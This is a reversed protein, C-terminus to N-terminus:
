GAPWTRCVPVLDVPLKGHATISVERVDGSLLLFANKEVRWHFDRRPDDSQPVIDCGVCPSDGTNTIRVTWRTTDTTERECSIIELSLKGAPMSRLAAFPHLMAFSDGRPTVAGTAAFEMLNVLLRRASSWAFFDIEQYNQGGYPGCFATVRGAGRNCTAIAPRDDVKAIVESEPKSEFIITLGLTPKAEAPINAWIPHEGCRQLVHDGTSPGESNSYPAVPFSIPLLEELPSAQLEDVTFMGSMYASSNYGLYLLSAGAEVATRLSQWCAMTLSSIPNVVPGLVILDYNQFDVNELPARQSIVRHDLEFGAATFYSFWVSDEYCGGDLFLTRLPKAAPDRPLSFLTYDNEVGEGVLRLFFAGEDPAPVVIDGLYTVFYTAAGTFVQSALLRGSAGYVSATVSVMEGNPTDTHWHIGAQVPAGAAFLYGSLRASVLRPACSRQMTWFSAKRRLSQDILGWNFDVWPENFEWIYFGNMCPHKRRYEEALYQYGVAQVWQTRRLADAAGAIDGAPGFMECYARLHNFYGECPQRHQWAEGFLDEVEEGTMVEHLSDLSPMAVIGCESNFPAQSSNYRGVHGMDFFWPGHVEPTIPSSDRFLQHAGNEATLRNMLVFLPDTRRNAKIQLLENGGHLCIVSPHSNVQELMARMEQELHRLLPLSPSGYGGFNLFDQAIMLGQLDAEEYLSEDLALGGGWVRLSTLNAACAERVIERQFEPSYDSPFLTPPLLAGGRIFLEKGNIVQKLEYNGEPYTAPWNQGAEAIYRYGKYFDQSYPGNNEYPHWDLLSPAAAAPFAVNAQMEVDRFGTLVWTNVGGATASLRYCSPFGQHFPHWRQVPIDTFPICVEVVGAPADVSYSTSEGTFNEPGLALQYSAAGWAPVALRLHVKGSVNDGELTYAIHMSRVLTDSAIIIEPAIAIGCNVLFPNHDGGFSCCSKSVLPNQKAPAEHKFPTISSYLASETAGTVTDEPLCCRLHLVLPGDGDPLPFLYEQNLSGVTGLCTSGWWVSGIGDVGRLRLFARESAQLAPVKVPVVFEWERTIVMDSLRSNRSLRPDPAEGRLFTVQRVDMPLSVTTSNDWVDDDTLRTRVTWDNDLIITNNYHM